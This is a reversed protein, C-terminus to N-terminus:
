LRRLVIAVVAVTIEAAALPRLGNGQDDDDHDGGDDSKLMNEEDLLFAAYTTMAPYQGHAAAVGCWKFQKAKDPILLGNGGGVEAVAAVVRNRNSSTHSLM